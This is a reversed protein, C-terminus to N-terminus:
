HININGGMVTKKDIQPKGFIDISGGARTKATVFDTAYIEANGGANVTVTTIKTILDKGEYVGGSNSVVMQSHSTGSLDVLGGSNTTVDVLNTDIKLNISSGEKANLTLSSSNITEDSTVASGESAFIQKLNTYYVKVRTNDGGLFNELDMRIKLSNEKNVIQVGDINPSTIEVFNRDSKILIVDIKDFVELTTFDGADQTNQGFGVVTLLLGFFIIVVKM